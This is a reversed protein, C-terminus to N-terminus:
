KQIIHLVSSIRIYTSEDSCMKIMPSDWQSLSPPYESSTTTSPFYNSNSPLAVNSNSYMSPIPQYVDTTSMFTSSSYDMSSPNYGTSTSYSPDLSYNNTFMQSYPDILYSSADPLASYDYTPNDFSHYPNPNLDLSSPFYFSQNTTTSNSSSHSWIDGTNFM